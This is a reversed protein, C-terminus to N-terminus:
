WTLGASRERRSVTAEGSCNLTPGRPKVAHRAEWEGDEMEEEMVARNEEGPKTKRGRKLGM